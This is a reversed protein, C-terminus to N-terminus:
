VYFVEMIPILPYLVVSAAQQSSNETNIDPHISKGAGKHYAAIAFRNGSSPELAQLGRLTDPFRTKCKASAAPVTKGTPLSCVTAAFSEPHHNRSWWGRLGEPIAPKVGICYQPLM